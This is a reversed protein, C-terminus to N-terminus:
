QRSFHPDGLTGAVAFHARAQVVPSKIEVTFRGGIRKGADAEASGGASIPGAGLHLQRLLTKGAEHVFKGGLEAFATKGGVSGSRLLNGLDVGLLTGKRIAFSGELRPAAFLGSYSNARMAYMAKGEEVLAPAISNPDVARVNIEGSLSWDGGWKLSANGSLYGGYAGGKFESLRLEGRRIVGKAQFNELVLAPDFPLNFANTEIEIGPSEGEAKLLLTTKRDPTELAIQRWAGDKDMSIKADLAPLTFNKSNLKGNKVIVSAM